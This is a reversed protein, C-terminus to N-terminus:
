KDREKKGKRKRERTPFYKAPKPESRGCSFKGTKKKKKKNPRKLLLM